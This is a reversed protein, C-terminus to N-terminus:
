VIVVDILSATTETKSTPKEVLQNLNFTSIFEQLIKTEPSSVLLSCNLDRLMIINLDLLLADVLSEALIEFCSTLTDPLRYTSCILFSKHSRCQVRLWLQQFGDGCIISLDELVTTKINSKVYICLGGEKKYSGRDQRFFQYGAIELNVDSVSLDAWTESITFIDFNNQLITDKVLCFNVRSKLSRADLHAVKVNSKLEKRIDFKALNNQNNTQKNPGPLPHVDGSRVLFVEAPNFSATCNAYYAVRSEFFKSVLNCFM